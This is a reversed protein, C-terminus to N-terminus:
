LTKQIKQLTVASMDKRALSANQHDLSPATHTALWAHLARPRGHRVIAHGIPKFYTIFFIYKRLVLSFKWFLETISWNLFYLSIGGFLM